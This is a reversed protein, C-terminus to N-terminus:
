GFMADSISNAAAAVDKAGARKPALFSKHRPFGVREEDEAGIM